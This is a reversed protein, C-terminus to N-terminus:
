AITSQPRHDNLAVVVVVSGWPVGSRDGISGWVRSRVM